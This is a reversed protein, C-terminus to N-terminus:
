IFVCSEESFFTLYASRAHCSCTQLLVPLLRQPPARSTCLRIGVSRTCGRRYKPLIEKLKSIGSASTSAQPWSIAPQGAACVTSAVCVVADKRWSSCRSWNTASCCFGADTSAAIERPGGSPPYLSACSWFTSTSMMPGGNSFPSVGDTRTSSLIPCLCFEMLDTSWEGTACDPMLQFQDCWVGPLGGGSVQPDSHIRTRVVIHGRCFSARKDRSSVRWDEWLRRSGKLAACVM